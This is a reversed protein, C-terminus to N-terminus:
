QSRRQRVWQAASLLDPAVFDAECDARREEGAILITAAGAGRGFEVDSPKDGIVVALAPDFGLEAVAQRMLGLRPKRCDCDAEPAHPCVYIAELHAGAERVMERLRANMAELTAPTFMGRGIGSQNTVVALRHGATSLRRLGEAAGPLFELGAPDDLYHRDVV